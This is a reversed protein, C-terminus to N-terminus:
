QLQNKLKQLEAEKEKVREDIREKEKEKAIVMASDFAEKVKANSRLPYDISRLANELHGVGFYNMMSTRRIIECARIIAFDEADKRSQFIRFTPDDGSMYNENKLKRLEYGQSKVYAVGVFPSTYVKSKECVECDSLWVLHTFDGNVYNIFERLAPIKDAASMSLKTKNAERIENMLNEKQEILLKIEESLKETLPSEFLNEFYVLEDDEIEEGEENVYVHKALFGQELVKTVIVENGQKTYM